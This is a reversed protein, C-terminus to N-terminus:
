QESAETEERYKDFITDKSIFALYVGREDVIPLFQTNNAIMASLVGDLTDDEHVIYQPREMIESIEMDKNYHSLAISFLKDIPVVGALGGDSGLVPFVQEKTQSSTIKEFAEAIPTNPMFVSSTKFMCRDATFRKLVAELQNDSILGKAILAKKYISHPEFLHGMALSLASVIMLPALLIFAGTTEAVLFIGAIPARMVTTFVGCIGYAVFNIESVGPVGLLSLLRGFAFGTFAGIFMTPAFIGGDGCEISVASVVPKVLIAVLVILVSVYTGKPLVMFVGSDGSYVTNDGILLQMIQAYGQSRLFPFAFLVVCALLGGIFLRKWQGDIRHILGAAFATSKIIYAGVLACFFSLLIIPGIENINWGNIFNWLLVGHSDGLWRHVANAVTSAVASAIVPPMLAPVTVEPLLAEAVFLVGAIPSDFVASIGAAAGCGLLTTRSIRKVRFLSAVNSGIAAGTLVSPAELGASGGFGVSLASSLLHAWTEYFPIATSRRDLKLILPALSKNFNNRKRREWFSLFFGLLPLLFIVMCRGTLDDPIDAIINSLEIVNTLLWHLGIAAIGMLAGTIAAVAYIHIWAHLRLGSYNSTQTNQSSM